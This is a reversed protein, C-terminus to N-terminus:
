RCKKLCVEPSPSSPVLSWTTVGGATVYPQQSYTYPTGTLATTDRCQATTTSFTIAGAATCIVETVGLSFRTIRYSVTAGSSITVLPWTVTIVNGTDRATIVPAVAPSFTAGAFSNDSIAYTMSFMANVNGPHVPTFASFMVTTTIVLRRLRLWSM